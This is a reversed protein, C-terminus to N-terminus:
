LRVEFTARAGDLAWDLRLEMPQDEGRDDPPVFRLHQPDLTLGGGLDLHLQRFVHRFLDREPGLGRAGQPPALATRPKRLMPRLDGEVSTGTGFALAAITALLPAM